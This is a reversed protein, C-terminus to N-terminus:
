NMDLLPVHIGVTAGFNISGRKADGHKDLEGPDVVFQPTYSFFAGVVVPLDQGYGAGLTLGPAFVDGLEPKKVKPGNDLALYNGLNVTDIQLHFGWGDSADPVTDFALGLPLGVPGYFTSNKGHTAVRAGGEARLAGALSWICDGGRGARDTMDKTLSELIKTRQGHKDEASTDDSKDAYTAAYDLLGTLLRLAGRKSKRDDADAASPWKLDVFKAAVVVFTAADKDLIADAFAVAFAVQTAEDLATTAEISACELKPAADNQLVMCATAAVTDLALRASANSSKEAAGLAVLQQALELAAPKAKPEPPNLADLEAEVNCNGLAKSTGDNNLAICRAFTLAGLVASQQAAPLKAVEAKQTAYLTLESIATRLALDRALGNSTVLSLALEFLAERLKAEAEGDGPPEGSAKPGAAAAPLHSAARQKVLNLLDQALAKALVEPAMAIDQIRLTGLVACSKPFDRAESCKLAAKLRAQLLAYGKNSARDVVIQGLIQLAEAAGDSATHGTGAASPATYRVRGKKLAALAADATTADLLETKSATFDRETPPPLPPESALPTTTPGAKKEFLYEVLNSCDKVNPFQAVATWKKEIAVFGDGPAPPLAPTKAGQHFFAVLCDKGEVCTGQANLPKGTPEADTSLTARLISANSFSKLQEEAAQKCDAKVAPSHSILALGLATAALSRLGTGLNKEM